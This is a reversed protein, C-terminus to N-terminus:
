TCEKVFAFGLIKFLFLDAKFNLPWAFPFVGKFINKSTLHAQGKNEIVLGGL